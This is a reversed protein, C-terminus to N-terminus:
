IMTLGRDIRQVSVMAAWAIANGIKSACRRCADTSSM